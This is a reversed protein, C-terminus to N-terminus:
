FFSTAVPQDAEPSNRCRPPLNRLPSGASGAASVRGSHSPLLLCNRRRTSFDASFFTSGLPIEYRRSERSSNSRTHNRKKHIATRHAGYGAAKKRPAGLSEGFRRLLRPERGPVATRPAERFLHSLPYGISPLPESQPKALGSDM